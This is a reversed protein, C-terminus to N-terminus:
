SRAQSGNLLDWEPYNSRALSPARKLATNLTQLLTRHDSRAGARDWPVRVHACSWLSILRVRTGREAADPRTCHQGTVPNRTRTLVSDVGGVRYCRPRQRGYPMVRRTPTSYGLERAGHPRMQRDTGTRRWKLSNIHAATRVRACPLAYPPDPTRTPQTQTKMSLSGLILQTVFV